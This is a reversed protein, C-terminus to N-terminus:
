PRPVTRKTKLIIAFHSCKRFSSADSVILYAYSHHRLVRVTTVDVICVILYTYSDAVTFVVFGM